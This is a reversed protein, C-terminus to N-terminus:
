SASIAHRAMVLLNYSLVSAWAYAKFHEFDSLEIAPCLERAETMLRVLVMVCDFLLSSDSPEHINTEILLRGHRDM